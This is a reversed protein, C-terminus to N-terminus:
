LIGVTLLALVLTLIIAVLLVIALFGVCLATAVRLTAGGAVERRGSSALNHNLIVLQQTSHYLRSWPQMFQAIRSDPIPARPTLESYM